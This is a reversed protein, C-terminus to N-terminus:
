RRGYDRKKDLAKTRRKDNQVHIKQRRAAQEIKPDPGGKFGSFSRSTSERILYPFMSADLDPVYSDSISFTPYTVGTARTKSTQLTDEIDSNYADFVLHEDDFSTYFSPMDNNTIRLRTGAVKDEVSTYDEQRGDTYKLFELPEKWKVEKYQFTGDDSKDYWVICVKKVNDELVFHTPFDADSLSTLKVLSEHEPIERTAIIDYFTEEVISAVQLAEVTDSISSVDDSDMRSLIDRVIELLTKKM